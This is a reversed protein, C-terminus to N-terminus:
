SSFPRAINNPPGLLGLYLLLNPLSLLLLTAVAPSPYVHRRAYDHSRAHAIACLERFGGFSEGAKGFMIVSFPGHELQVHMDCWVRIRASQKVM